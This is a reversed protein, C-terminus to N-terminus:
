IMYLPTYNYKLKILFEDADNRNAFTYLKKDSYKNLLEIIYPRISTRFDKIFAIFEPDEETEIWPMDFRPKGKRSRVGDLCVELQYDLFFVTDCNQLRLEMTSGYNGDIIWENKILVENLRDLFVERDVTTKDANWKLMDLHFLPVGIIEHLAKSFTSKGSGPCGIVIIRKMFSM